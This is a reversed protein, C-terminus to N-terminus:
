NTAQFNIPANLELAHRTLNFQARQVLYDLFFNTFFLVIDSLTKM